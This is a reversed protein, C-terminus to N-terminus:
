LYEKETYDNTAKRLNIGANNVLIDLCKWSDNIWSAVKTRDDTNTIDSVLTFVKYGKEEFEEWTDSLEKENRATFLVEAGLSALEEVTAKGIGKSGGTVLAKKGILNWKKIQPTM